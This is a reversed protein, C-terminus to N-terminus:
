PVRNRTIRGDDARRWRIAVSVASKLLWNNKEILFKLKCCLALLSYDFISKIKAM